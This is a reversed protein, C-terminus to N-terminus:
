ARAGKGKPKPEWCEPCLGSFRDGLALETGCGDCLDIAQFSLTPTKVIRDETKGNANM